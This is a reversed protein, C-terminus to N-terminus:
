SINRGVHHTAAICAGGVVALSVTLHPDQAIQLLRIWVCRTHRHMIVENVAYTDYCKIKCKKNFTIFTKSAVVKEVSENETRIM